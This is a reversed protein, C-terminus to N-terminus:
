EESVGKCNCKKCYGDYTGDELWYHETEDADIIVAGYHKSKKFKTPEKLKM